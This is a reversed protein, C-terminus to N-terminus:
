SRISIMIILYITVGYRTIFIANMKISEGSTTFLLIVKIYFLPYLRYNRYVKDVTKAKIKCRYGIYQIVM